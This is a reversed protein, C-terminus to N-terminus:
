KKNSPMPASRSKKASDYKRYGVKNPPRNKKKKTLTQISLDMSRRLEEEPDEKSFGLHSWINAPASHSKYSRKQPSLNTKKQQADQDNEQPSSPPKPNQRSSFSLGWARIRHLFSSLEHIFRRLVSIVYAFFARVSKTKSSTSSTSTRVGSTKSSSPSTGTLWSLPKANSSTSRPTSTALADRSSTPDKSTFSPTSSRTSPSVVRTYKTVNDAGKSTDKPELSAISDSSSLSENSPSRSSPLLDDRASYFSVDDSLSSDTSADRVNVLSADDSLARQISQRPDDPIPSELDRDTLPDSDTSLSDVAISAELREDSFLQHQKEVAREYAHPYKTRLEELQAPSLSEAKTLDIFLALDEFFTHLDQINTQIRDPNKKLDAEDGQVFLQFLPYFNNNGKNSFFLETFYEYAAILGNLKETNARFNNLVADHVSQVKKDQKGKHSSALQNAQLIVANLGPGRAQNLDHLYNIITLFLCAARHFSDQGLGYLRRQTWSMKSDFVTINSVIGEPSSYSDRSQDGEYDLVDILTDDHQSHLLLLSITEKILTYGQQDRPNNPDLDLRQMNQFAESFGARNELFTCVRFYEAIAHAHEVVQNKVGPLTLFNINSPLPLGEVSPTTTLMATIQDKPM